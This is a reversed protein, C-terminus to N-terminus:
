QSQWFFTALWPQDVYSFVGMIVMGLCDWHILKARDQCIFMSFTHTCFQHALQQTVCCTIQGTTNFNVLTNGDFPCPDNDASNKTLPEDHDLFPDDKPDMRFEIHIDILSTNTM